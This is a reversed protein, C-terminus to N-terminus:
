TLSSEVVVRGSGTFQGIRVAHPSGKQRLEDMLGAAAEAPLAILLGGNTQADALVLQMHLPFGPRFDVEEAVYELNDRSGGPVIGLSSFEVVGPLFKVADANLEFGLKAPRCMECLHGLLGFGTVDTCASVAFAAMVEAADRNLKLLSEFLAKEQVSDLLGQKLATSLIGTGIPKTLILADGPRAGANRLIKAPHVTGTVSLGFKPENDEVTHGGLIPIGAEDAKDAAGKLISTLVSAPLRNSPFAAINLAYLPKAGMAYIDSLSNAAAVAGFTYPDDVIPTFFDLTSVLALNESIRYVSADDSTETGVLIEPASPRTLTKLVEELQRPRLKCACGLGHTYQTLRIEDHNKEAPCATEGQLRNVASVIMETAQDIEEATTYRGTSLRITGMGWEPSVGMATLVHGMDVRGSHCAAGASVALERLESLLTQAEIGRFSISLTNPLRKLPHGNVRAQGVGSLIGAELRDRLSRMGSTDTGLRERALRCAEGLGAMYMVNETGPRLGREQGAGHMIQELRIGRRIFLAGIGKPAYLKHGAVTLLGSGLKNVDLTVKGASQAADTHLVIGYGAAIDGIEAIPQLTGTENNSHMISILITDTTISKRLDDPDVCGYGDVPLRSIRFGQKELWSCVELVAPHEVASTIIHNGAGMRNIALGKLAMNNSETGGATFCIEDTHCGILAAVEARAKEAAQRAQIGFWHNSSPNGFLGVLFPEMARAVEPALPTTANYDLYVPQV